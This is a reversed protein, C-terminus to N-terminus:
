VQPNLPPQSSSAQTRAQKQRQGEDIWAKIASRGEARWSTQFAQWAAAVGESPTLLQEDDFTIPGEGAGPTISRGLNEYYRLLGIAAVQGSLERYRIGAIKMQKAVGQIRKLRRLLSINDDSPLTGTTGFYEVVGLLQNMVEAAVKESKLKDEILADKASTVEELAGSLRAAETTLSNKQNLLQSAEEQLRVLETGATAHEARMREVEARLVIREAELEKNAAELGQRARRETSVIIDMQVVRGESITLYRQLTENEERLCTIEQENSINAARALVTQQYAACEMAANLESRDAKSLIAVLNTEGIDRSAQDLPELLTRLGTTRELFPALLPLMSIAQQDDEDLSPGSHQGTTKPAGPSQGAKTHQSEDTSESPTLGSSAAPLSDINRKGRGPGMQTAGPIPESTMSPGPITSEPRVEEVSTSEEVNQRRIIMPSNPPDFALDEDSDATLDEVAPVNEQVTRTAEDPISAMTVEVGSEDVPVEDQPLDEQVASTRPQELNEQSEPVNAPVEAQATRQSADENILHVLLRGKDEQSDSISARPSSPAPNKPKQAVKKVPTKASSSTGAEAKRKQTREGM